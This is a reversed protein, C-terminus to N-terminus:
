TFRILMYTWMFLLLVMLIIGFTMCTTGRSKKSVTALGKKNTRTSALNKELADQSDDILHKENELSNSFHVANLKLRHSMDALQGGLEEHLQAAGLGSEPAIGRLLNDRDGAVSNGHPERTEELKLPLLSAHDGTTHERNIKALYDDTQARRRRASRVTTPQARPLPALRSEEYFENSPLAFKDVPSSNTQNSSSSSMPLAILAPNSSPTPSPSILRRRFVTEVTRLSRDLDTFAATSSSSQENVYQLRDLLARAYLVTEWEKKLAVSSEDYDSDAAKVELSKVLRILNTRAHQSSAAALVAKQVAPTPASPYSTSLLAATM